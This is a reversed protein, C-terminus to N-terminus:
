IHRILRLISIRIYVRWDATFKFDLYIDQLKVTYSIEKVKVPLQLILSFAIAIVSFVHKSRNTIKKTTEFSRQVFRINHMACGVYLLSVDLVFLKTSKCRFVIEKFHGPVIFYVIKLRWKKQVRWKIGEIGCDVAAACAKPNISMQSDILENKM